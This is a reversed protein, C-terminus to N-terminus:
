EAVGFHERIAEACGYPTPWNQRDTDDQLRELVMVCEQIILEDRQKTISQLTRLRSLANVLLYDNFRTAECRLELCQIIEETKM